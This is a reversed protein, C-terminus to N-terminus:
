RDPRRRRRPPMDGIVAVEAAIDAVKRNMDQSALSLLAFAKEQTVQHRAMLIGIAVGIDRNTQLARVLHDAREHALHASVLLSCQTAFVLAHQVTADDFADEVRAYVNLAADADEDGLMTLRYALLSSVGLSEHVQKGYRVWRPDRHIEGTLYVNDEVAAELCPGEMLRYQIEDAARAEPHSATMTRPHAGRRVLTVSVWDAGRIVDAARRVLADLVERVDGEGSAEAAKEELLTTVLDLLQVSGAPAPPDAGEALRVAPNKVPAEVSEDM